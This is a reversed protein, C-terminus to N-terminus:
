FTETPVHGLDIGRVAAQTRDSVELKRIVNAVHTKATTGAIDLAHAIEPNSRGRAILRLVEVERETLPDFPPRRDSGGASGERRADGAKEDSLGRLLRLTLEQRDRLMELREDVALERKRTSRRLVWVLCLTALGVMPSIRALVPVAWHVV